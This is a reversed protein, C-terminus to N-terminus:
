GQIDTWQKMSVSDLLILSDKERKIIGQKELKNLLRSLHEPTVAIIQALEKHKFPLAITIKKHLETQLRMDTILQFLLNKLREIGPICGLMVLQKAHNFIEQSLMRLMHFSFESNIKVLHLFNNASICRLSCQILTTITFSYPKDLIVSPAGIIWQQRRLGAIVEHGAHDVWTLKVLGQNLFYVANSPTDQRLIETHAPYIQLPGWGYIGCTSEIFFSDFFVDSRLHNNESFLPFSSKIKM